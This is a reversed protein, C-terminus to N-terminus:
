RLQSDHQRRHGAHNVGVGFRATLLSRVREASGPRNTTSRMSSRWGPRCSVRVRARPRATCCSCGRDRPHLSPCTSGINTSAPRSTRRSGRSACSARTSTTSWSGARWWMPDHESKFGRGATEVPGTKDVMGSLVLEAQKLRAGLKSEELWLEARSVRAIMAGPDKPAVEHAIEVVAIGDGYLWSTAYFLALEGSKARREATLQVTVRKGKLPGLVPPARFVAEVRVVALRPDPPLQSLTTAGTKLVKGTFIFPAGRVKEFFRADLQSEPTIM